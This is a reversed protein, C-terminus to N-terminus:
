NLEKRLRAVSIGLQERYKAVTRRAIPYGKAKLIDALDDDTLPSHKDENNVCDQLISKIERTSVEEGAENQMSESFFSKLSFIGFHTQVYKSNVVRSITSIDLSTVDAVDKLIMPRLKKEDGTKFYELQYNLIAQMVNFLTQQRQHIADIFWKASEIKQKLFSLLEKNKSNGKGGNMASGIIDNYAKSLRLEPQNRNNLLLVPNGDKLEIFFDPIINEIVSDTANSFISGPKPNLKVIEDLAEKLEADTINLRQKIKDYHRKSFEDFSKKLIKYAIQFKPLSLNKQELQLLLCEQLDRAGVGVPELEQIQKLIGLLEIEDTQINQLFAIDDAISSLPRRIYGDDDINGVIFSALMHQKEDLDLEMLQSELFEHFSVTAVAPMDVRKDDVSHNNTKLKYEPIYEDENYYDELSFEDSSDLESSGAEEEFTVEDKEEKEEEELMPNKELEEKIRQELSVAPIELLKILQIQQPTLKQQLKQELRQKLM